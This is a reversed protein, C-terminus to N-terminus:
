HFEHINQIKRVKVTSSQSSIKVTSPFSPNGSIHFSKEQPYRKHSTSSSPKSGYGYNSRNSNDSKGFFEDANFDFVHTQVTPRTNRQQLNITGFWNTQNSTNQYHPLTNTTLPRQYIRPNRNAVSPLKTVRKTTQSLPPSKEIRETKEEKKEQIRRPTKLPPSSINIKKKKKKNKLRSSSKKKEKQVPAVPTPVPEEEEKTEITQTVLPETVFSISNTVITEKIETKIEKVEKEIEIEDDDEDDNSDVTEVQLDDDLLDFSDIKQEFIDVEQNFAITGPIFLIANEVGVLLHRKGNLLECTLIPFPLFIECILNFSYDWYKVSCDSSCSVFFKSTFSFGTVSGSHFKDKIMKVPFTQFEHIVFPQIAGNKFGVFLFDSHIKAIENNEVGISEVVRRARFDFRNIESMFIAYISHTRHHYLLQNVRKHSLFVRDIENYGVMSLFVLEGDINSVCYVWQNDYECLCIATSNIEVHSIVLNEKTSADYVSIGNKSSPSFLRDIGYNTENFIVRGDYQYGIYLGRDYLPSFSDNSLKISSILNKTKPSFLFATNDKCLVMIRAAKMKKNCRKIEIPNAKLKEWLRYQLTLKKFYIISGSLIAIESKMFFVQDVKRPFHYISIQKLLNADFIYFNSSTDVGIIFNKNLFKLISFASIQTQINGLHNGDRDTIILSGPKSIVFRKSSSCYDFNIISEDDILHKPKKDTFFSEIISSDKKFFISESIPDYAYIDFDEKIAGVYSLSINSNFYDLRWAKTPTGISLLLRSNPIHMLKKVITQDTQFNPLLQQTVDHKSLIFIENNTSSFGVFLGYERIETSTSFSNPTTRIIKQYDVDYLNNSSSIIYSNESKRIVGTIDAARISIQYDDEIGFRSSKM